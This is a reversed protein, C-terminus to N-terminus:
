LQAALCLLSYARDGEVKGGKHEWRGEEEREQGPGKGEGEKKM